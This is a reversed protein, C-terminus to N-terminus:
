NLERIREEIKEFDWNLNTVDKGNFFITKIEISDYGPYGSGDGYNYVSREFLHEYEVDITYDVGNDTTIELGTYIM